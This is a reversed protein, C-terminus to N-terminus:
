SSPPPGRFPYLSTLEPFAQLLQHSSAVAATSVFLLYQALSAWFLLCIPFIIKWKGELLRGIARQQKWNTCDSLFGDRALSVKGQTEVRAHCLQCYYPPVGNSLCFNLLRNGSKFLQTELSKIDTPSSSSATPAKQRKPPLTVTFM